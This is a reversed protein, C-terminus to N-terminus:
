ESSKRRLCDKQWIQVQKIYKPVLAWVNMEQKAALTLRRSNKFIHTEVYHCCLPLVSFLSFPEAEGGGNNVTPVLSLGSKTQHQGGPIEGTRTRLTILAPFDLTPFHMNFNPGPFFFICGVFHATMLLWAIVKVWAAPEPWAEM